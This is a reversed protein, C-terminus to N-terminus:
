GAERHSAAETSIDSESDNELSADPQEEIEVLRYFSSLTLKLRDLVLARQQKLASIIRRM